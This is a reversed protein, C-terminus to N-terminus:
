HLLGALASRRVPLLEFLVREPEGRSNLHVLKPMVFQGAWGAVDVVAGPPGRLVADVGPAVFRLVTIWAGGERELTATMVVDKTLNFPAAPPLWVRRAHREYRGPALIQIVDAM